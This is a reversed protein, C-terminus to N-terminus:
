IKKVHRYIIVCFVNYNNIYIIVSINILTYLDVIIIYWNSICKMLHLLHVVLSNINVLSDYKM